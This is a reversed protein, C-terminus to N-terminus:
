RIKTLSWKGGSAGDPREWEGLIETGDSKIKWSGILDYGARKNYWEFIVTDGSRTGVLRDGPKDDWTGNIESGNQVLKIVSRRKGRKTTVVSKYTGTIDVEVQEIESAGANVSVTYLTVLITLYILRLMGKQILVIRNM